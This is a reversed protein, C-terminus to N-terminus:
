DAWWDRQGEVDERPDEGLNTAADDDAPLDPSTADDGSARLPPAVLPRYHSEGSAGPILVFTTM